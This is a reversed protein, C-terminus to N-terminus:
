LDNDQHPLWVKKEPLTLSPSPRIADKIPGLAENSPYSCGNSLCVPREKMPCIMSGMM